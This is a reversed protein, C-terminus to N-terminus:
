CPISILWKLCKSTLNEKSLKKVKKKLYELRMGYRAKLSLNWIQNALHETLIYVQPFEMNLSVYEQYTDLTMCINLIYPLCSYASDDLFHM